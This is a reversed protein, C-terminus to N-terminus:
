LAEALAEDYHEFVLLYNNLVAGYAVDPEYDGTGLDMEDEVITVVATDNDIMAGSSADSLIVNFTEDGEYTGDWATQVTITAIDQQDEFVLTGKDYVYDSEIATGSTVEYSVSVSGTLDGTRDVYITIPMGEEVIYDMTSNISITTTPSEAGDNDTITVIAVTDTKLAGNGTLNSLTVEFSEVEEEDSDDFTPISLTYFQQGNAFIATGSTTEVSYDSGNTTIDEITYDM